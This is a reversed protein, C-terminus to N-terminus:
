FRYSVGASFVGSKVPDGYNDKEMDTLGAMYRVNVGFNPVFYYGAGAGLSFNFTNLSDKFDTTNSTSGGLGAINADGDFKSKAGAVFGFQPGAEVYFEPTFHYQAMVPINIMHINNTTKYSYSGLSSSYSSEVKNGELSYLVEPQISFNAGLPANMFFGAYAGVKAKTDSSLGNNDLGSDQSLASVNVGAKIGFTLPSDATGSTAGYTNGTQALAFSSMAVAAGLFLKKM